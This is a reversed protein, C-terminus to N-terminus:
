ANWIRYVSEDERPPTSIEHKTASKGKVKDCHGQGQFDQGRSKEVVAQALCKM